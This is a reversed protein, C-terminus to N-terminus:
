NKLGVQKKFKEFEAERVKRGNLLNLTTRPYGLLFMFASFTLNETRRSKILRNAHEYRDLLEQSSYDLKPRKKALRCLIERQLSVPEKKFWLAIALILKLM